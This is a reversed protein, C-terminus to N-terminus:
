RAPVAVAPAFIKTSVVMVVVVLVFVLLSYTDCLVRRMCGGPVQQKERWFEEASGCLTRYRWQLQPSIIIILPNFSPTFLSLPPFACFNL